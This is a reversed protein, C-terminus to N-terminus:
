KKVAWVILALGVAVLTTAILLTRLSFRRKWRTWAVAACSVSLLTLFWHPLTLDLSWGYDQSRHLLIHWHVICPRPMTSEFRLSPKATEENAIIDVDGCTSAVVFHLPFPLWGYVSECARYSRVWLAILLLAV